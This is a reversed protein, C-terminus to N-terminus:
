SLLAVLTEVLKGPSWHLPGMNFDAEQWRWQTRPSQNMGTLSLHIGANTIEGRKLSFTKNKPFLEPAHSPTPCSGSPLLPSCLTEKPGLSLPSFSLSFPCSHWLVRDPDADLTLQSCPYVPAQPAKFAWPRIGYCHPLVSYYGGM